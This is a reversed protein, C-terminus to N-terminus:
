PFHKHAIMNSLNPNFAILCANHTISLVMPDDFNVRALQLLNCVGMDIERPQFLSIKLNENTRDIHYPSLNVINFTPFVGCDRPLEIEYANKGIRKLM